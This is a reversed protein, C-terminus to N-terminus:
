IEYYKFVSTEGLIHFHHTVVFGKMFQFSTFCLIFGKRFTLMVGSQKKFLVLMLIIVAKKKIFALIRELSRETLEFKHFPTPYKYECHLKM